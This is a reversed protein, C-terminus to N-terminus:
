KLYDMIVNLGWCIAIILLMKDIEDLPFIRKVGKHHRMAPKLNTTNEKM